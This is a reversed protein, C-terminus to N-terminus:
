RAYPYMYKTWASKKSSIKHMCPSIHTNTDCAIAGARVSRAETILHAQENGQQAWAIKTGHGKWQNPKCNSMKKQEQERSIFM